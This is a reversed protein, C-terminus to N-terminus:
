DTASEGFMFLYKAGWDISSNKGKSQIRPEDSLDAGIYRYLEQRLVRRMESLDYLFLVDESDRQGQIEHLGENGAGV